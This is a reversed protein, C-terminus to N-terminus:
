QIRMEEDLAALRDMAENRYKKLTERLDTLEDIVDDVLNIPVSGTVRCRELQTVIDTKTSTRKM